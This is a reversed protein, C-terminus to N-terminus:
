IELKRKDTHSVEAHNQNESRLAAIVTFTINQFTKLKVVEEESFWGIDAAERKSVSLAGGTARALYISDFHIHMGAPYPVEEYVIAFPLVETHAGDVKFEVNQRGILEVDIGTEEKTERIAAENTFENTDVHGGPPMWVGLKRHNLLLVKEDRIVIASATICRKLINTKDM